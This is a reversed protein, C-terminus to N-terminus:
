PLLTGVYAAEAIRPLSGDTLQLKWTGDQTPSTFLVATNNDTWAVPRLFTLVPDTLTQQTLAQLDVLVFIVRVTPQAANASIVQALSYIARTGDPSVLVDGALTYNRFRPVALPETTREAGAVLNYIRLDYGVQDESLGMRLLQGEGIGAGCLCGREEEGPLPTVSGSELELAFLGAYQSIPMFSSLGDPHLDMYLITREANFALPLARLGDARPGDTLVQRTNSGDASAVSTVTTLRGFEDSNTLTWAVIGGDSSLLWDVRRTQATSSIFPHPRTSGDPAALMVQRRSTDFYMVHESTTQYREGYVDLTTEAGTFGDVFILRDLGTPDVSRQLFVQVPHTTTSSPDPTAEQASIPVILSAALVALFILLRYWSFPHLRL